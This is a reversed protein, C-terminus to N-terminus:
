PAVEVVGTPHWILTGREFSQRKGGDGTDTENSTAWGLGGQEWGMAAYRAAIAGHVYYGHESGDRRQLVGSHFAQVAGGSVKAWEVKPWGLPGREWQYEGWAEFLGSTTPMDAAAHPVVFARPDGRRWYIHAREFEAYAGGPLPREGDHRRKGIWPSRAAADDILNPPPAIFARARRLFEDMPFERGPDTHGGGRSGFDGQGVVGTRGTPWNSSKGGNNFGVYELPFGYLQSAWAMVRAGRTLMADENLGDSADTELWKRREWEAFSGAFVLHFGIGNAQVAAWPAEDEDVLLISERDDVVGNYSVGAKVCYAVLDRAKSKGQQTHLVGFPTSERVGDSGGNRPTSTFQPDVPVSGGPTSPSPSDTPPAAPTPTQGWDEALVDNVDVVIGGVRPGPNAATDIVRQYLVAEDAVGQSWARTQWAWWRGGPARGIVGDEAAWACVRAHGYVGVREVGLVEGAGRFYHAATENWQDLTIDEDVAFYIPRGDDFGAARAAADALRAHERGGARGLTWDSPTRDGPKGYQWVAAVAIGAARYAELHERRIPKGAFSTGPRSPSIYAVLGVHGATKLADAPPFGGATDIVTAPMFGGPTSDPQEGPYVADNLLAAFDRKTAPDYVRPMYSVHLHPAVGGNTNTNSNIRGIVQGATVEDGARVEGVIHGYEFCGGGQEDSSDIVVWGAPAPGGYGSAAGAYLVTGGQIARVARGGSGGDFGFDIGSHFDDFDRPGFPSTVVYGRDLPHVRTVM